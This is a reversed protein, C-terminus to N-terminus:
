QGTLTVSETHSGIIDLAQLRLDSIQLTGVILPTIHHLLLVQLNLRQPRLQICERLAQAGHAGRTLRPRELVLTRRM